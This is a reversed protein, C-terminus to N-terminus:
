PDMAASLVLLLHILYLLTRRIFPVRNLALITLKPPANEPHVPASNFPPFANPVVGGCM